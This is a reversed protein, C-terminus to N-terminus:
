CLRSCSHWNCSNAVGMAGNWKGGWQKVKYGVGAILSVWWLTYLSGLIGMSCEKVFVLMYMQHVLSESLSAGCHM